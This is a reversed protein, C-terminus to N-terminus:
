VESNEGRRWASRWEIDLGRQGTGNKEVVSRHPSTYGFGPVREGKDRLSKDM